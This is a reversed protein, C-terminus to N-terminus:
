IIYRNQGNSVCRCLSSLARVLLDGHGEKGWRGKGYGEKEGSLIRVGGGWLVANLAGMQKRVKSAMLAVRELAWLWREVGAPMRAPVAAPARSDRRATVGVSRRLVARMSARAREGRKVEARCAV